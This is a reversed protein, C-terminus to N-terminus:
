KIDLLKQKLLLYLNKNDDKLKKVMTPNYNKVYRLKTKIEIDPNFDLKRLNNCKELWIKLIKYSQEYELKKINELYPCM